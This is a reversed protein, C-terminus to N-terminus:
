WQQTMLRSTVTSREKQTSFRDPELRIHRGQHTQDGNMLRGARWNGNEFHGEWASQIGASQRAGSAPSATITLGSGAFYYKGPGTQVILGGHSPSIQEREPVWPDFYSVEFRYDGLTVAEPADCVSGDYTTSNGFEGGLVLFPRGDVILQTASGQKRLHPIDSASAVASALVAAFLLVLAKPHPKWRPEPPM